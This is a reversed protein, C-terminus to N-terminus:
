VNINQANILKDHKEFNRGVMWLAICIVIMVIYTVDYHVFLSLVYIITFLILIFISYLKLEQM